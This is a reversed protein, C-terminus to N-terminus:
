SKKERLRLVMALLFKVCGLTIFFLGLLKM